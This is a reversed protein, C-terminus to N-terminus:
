DELYPLSESLYNKVPQQVLQGQLDLFDIFDEVIDWFVEVQKEHLGSTYATHKIILSLDVASNVSPKLSKARTLKEQILFYMALSADLKSKLMKSQQDVVQGTLEKKNRENILDFEDRALDAKDRNAIPLTIGIQFGLHERVTNGQDREYNAQLFGINSFAEAKNVRYMEEELLLKQNAELKYLNMEAVSDLNALYSAISEPSIFDFGEWEVEGEFDLSILSTVEGLEMQLEAAEIEKLSLGSELSIFDGLDIEEKQLKLVQETFKKRFAIEEEAIGIMQNLFYHDILLRYRSKLASSYAIRYRTQTNEMQQQNYARNAKVEWPNSPSVRLKYDELSANMGKSTFRLEVDRIWSSKIGKIELFNMEAQFRELGQDGGATKLYEAVFSGNQCTGSLVWISM